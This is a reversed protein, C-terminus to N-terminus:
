KNKNVKSKQNNVTFVGIYKNKRITNKKDLYFEGSESKHIIRMIKTNKM